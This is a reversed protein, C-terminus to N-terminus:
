GDPFDDTVYFNHERNPCAGRMAALCRIISADTHGFAKVSEGCKDCTTIVHPPDDFTAEYYDVSCTVKPPLKQQSM